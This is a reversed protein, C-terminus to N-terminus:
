LRKQQKEKSKECDGTRAKLIVEALLLDEATTIKINEYSGEVTRVEIGLREVLSSEDTCTISATIAARSAETLIECLFGQPTQVARLGERPPTARVIGGAVEKITDKVQVAVVGSGYEKVSAITAEIIGETILPRAGDHVLIIDSDLNEAVYELANAVSNQREKGGAIVATVKTYNYKEVIEKKCYALDEKATVIIIDDILPSAQFAKLTRALVPRGALEMYNKKIKQGGTKQVMRHGMGASPIIATVQQPLSNKSQSKNSM